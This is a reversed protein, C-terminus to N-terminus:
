FRSNFNDPNQYHSAMGLIYITENDIMYYITYPFKAAVCKHVRENIKPYLNPFTEIRKLSQKIDSSFRAALEESENKYYYLSRDFDDKSARTFEIKM